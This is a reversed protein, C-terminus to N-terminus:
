IILDYSVDSLAEPRYQRSIKNIQTYSKKKNILLHHGTFLQQSWYFCDCQGTIAFVIRSSQSQCKTIQLGCM